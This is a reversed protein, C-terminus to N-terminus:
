IRGNCAVAVKENKYEIGSGREKPFMSEGSVSMKDYKNHM